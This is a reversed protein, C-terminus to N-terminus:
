STSISLAKTEMSPWGSGSLRNVLSKVSTSTSSPAVSRDVPHRSSGSCCFFVSRPIDSAARLGYGKMETQVIEVNAFHRKTFSSVM